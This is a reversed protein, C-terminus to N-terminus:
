KDGKMFLTTRSKLRYGNIDREIFHPHIFLGNMFVYELFESVEEPRAKREIYGTGHCKPCGSTDVIKGDCNERVMMRDMLLDLQKELDTLYIDENDPRTYRDWKEAKEKWETLTKTCKDINGRDGTLTSLARFFSVLVENQEKMEVMEPLALIADTTKSARKHSHGVLMIQEEIEDRLM